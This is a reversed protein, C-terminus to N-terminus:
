IVDSLSYKPSQFELAPSTICPALAFVYQDRLIFRKLAHFATIIILFKCFNADSRRNELVEKMTSNPIELALDNSTGDFLQQNVFIKVKDTNTHQHAKEFMLAIAGSKENKGILGHDAQLEDLKKVLRNCFTGNPRKNSPVSILISINASIDSEYHNQLTRLFEAAEKVAATMREPHTPNLMDSARFDGSVSQLFKLASSVKEKESQIQTSAHSVFDLPRVQDNLDDIKTPNRRLEYLPIKKLKLKADFLKAHNKADGDHTDLLSLFEKFKEEADFYNSTNLFANALYFLIEAQVTSAQEGLEKSIEERRDLHMKSVRICEDHEGLESFCSTYCSLYSSNLGASKELHHSGNLADSRDSNSCHLFRSIYLHGLCHHIEARMRWLEKQKNDTKNDERKKENEFEGSLKILQKIAFDAYKSDRTQMTAGECAYGWFIQTRFYADDSWVSVNSNRKFMAKLLYDFGAVAYKASNNRDLLLKSLVRKQAEDLGDSEFDIEFNPQDCNWFSRVAKVDDRLINDLNSFFSKNASCYIDFVRSALWSCVTDSLIRESQPVDTLAKIHTQLKKFLRTASHESITTTLLLDSINSSQSEDDSNEDESIERLLGVWDLIM